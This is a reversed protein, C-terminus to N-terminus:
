KRRYAMAFGEQKITERSQFKLHDEIDHHLHGGWPSSGNAAGTPRGAGLSSVCIRTTEPEPLLKHVRVM